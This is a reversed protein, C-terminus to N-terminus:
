LTRGDALTLPECTREFARGRDILLSEVRPDYDVRVRGMRFRDLTAADLRNRATYNQDAGTGMTNAAAIPIFGEHRQVVEDQVPNDFRSGALAGNLLTATNSDAADIEDLLFVGGDRYRRIWGTEIFGGPMNRGSFWAVSIGEACPIAEFPLGLVEAVDAALHSKGTGAPGVLYVPVRAKILALIYPLSRHKGDIPEGFKNVDFRDIGNTKRADQPWDMTCADLVAAEPIGVALMRAGNEFPRNGITDAEGGALKNKGLYERLSLLKLRLREYKDAKETPPKPKEQEQKPAKHEQKGPLFLGMRVAEAISEGVTAESSRARRADGDGVKVIGRTVEVKRGKVFGAACCGDECTRRLHRIVNRTIGQQQFDLRRRDAESLRAKIPAGVQHRASM